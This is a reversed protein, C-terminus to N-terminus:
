LDNKVREISKIEGFAERIGATNEANTFIVIDESEPALEKSQNFYDALLQPDVPETEPIEGNAAIIINQHTHVLKRNFMQKRARVGASGNRNILIAHNYYKLGAETFADVTDGVFNRYIGDKDRVEGVVFCAFRNPKLMACSEKIIQKYAVVFDEYAMNSLDNPDDSYVELDAYPPCSLIMDFQQHRSKDKVIRAIDASDGCNWTPMVFDDGLVGRTIQAQSRNEKVQKSSLDNGFYGHGLAGSVIGRVSGGAFPDLVSGGIVNFWRLLIECLVPDFISTYGSKSPMVKSGSFGLLNEDRGKESALIISNWVKRRNAWVPTRTDLVTFPPVIFDRGLSGDEFLKPAPTDLGWDDLPLDSWENALLDMDWDGNAINDKIVFERKKEESLGFVQKVPVNKEGIAELAKIRQHGGLIRMNEDVVVERLSKMEPFEKLSKKLKEFDQKSIQRPNNSTPKLDAINAQFEKIEISMMQGEIM